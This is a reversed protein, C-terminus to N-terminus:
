SVIPMEVNKKSNIASAILMYFSLESSKERVWLLYFSVISLRTM